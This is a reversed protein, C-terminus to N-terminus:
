FLSFEISMEPIKGALQQVGHTTGLNECSTKADGWTMGGTESFYCRNSWYNSYLTTCDTSTPAETTTTMTMMMTKTTKPAEPTTAATEFPKLNASTVNWVDLNANENQGFSM